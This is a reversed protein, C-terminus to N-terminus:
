GPVVMVPFIIINDAFFFISADMMNLVKVVTQKTKKNKNKRKREKKNENSYM